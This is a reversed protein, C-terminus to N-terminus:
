DNEPKQTVMPALDWAYPMKFKQRFEELHKINHRGQIPEPTQHFHSARDTQPWSLLTKVKSSPPLTWDAWCQKLYFTSSPYSYDGFLWDNYYYQQWSNVLSAFAKPLKYKQWHIALWKWDHSLGLFRAPLFQCMEPFNCLHNTLPLLFPFIFFVLIPYFILAIVLEPLFFVDVTAIVVAM